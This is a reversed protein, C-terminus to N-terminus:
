NMTILYETASIVKCDKPVIFKDFDDTWFLGFNVYDDAIAFNKHAKFHADINEFMERENDELKDM